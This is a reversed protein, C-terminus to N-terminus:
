PVSSVIYSYGLKSATFVPTEPVTGGYIGLSLAGTVSDFDVDKLLVFSASGSVWNPMPDIVIPRSNQTVNSADPSVCISFDANSDGPKFSYEMSLQLVPAQRLTEPLTIVPFFAVTNPTVEINSQKGAAVDLELKQVTTQATVWTPLLYDTM